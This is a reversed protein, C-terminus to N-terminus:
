MALEPRLDIQPAQEVVIVESEAGVQEMLNSLTDLLLQPRRYSAIIISYKLVPKHLAPLSLLYM